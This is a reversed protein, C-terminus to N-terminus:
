VAEQWRDIPQVYYDPMQLTQAPLYLAAGFFLLYSDHFFNNITLLKTTANIPTMANLAPATGIV